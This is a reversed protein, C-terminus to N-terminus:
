SACGSVSEVVSAVALEVFREVRDGHATDMPIRLGLFVDVFAGFFSSCFSFDDSAEFAVDGAM